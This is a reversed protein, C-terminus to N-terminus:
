VYRLTQSHQRPRTVLAWDVKLRGNIHQGVRLLLHQNIVHLGPHHPLLYPVGKLTIPDGSCIVQIDHLPLLEVPVCASQATQWKLRTNEHIHFTNQTITNCCSTPSTTVILSTGAGAAPLLCHVLGASSAAPGTSTCLMVHKVLM